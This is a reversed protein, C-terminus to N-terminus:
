PQSVTRRNSLVESVGLLDNRYSKRLRQNELAM